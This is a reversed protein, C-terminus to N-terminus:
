DRAATEIRVVRAGEASRLLLFLADGRATATVLEEGADAVEALAAEFTVEGADNWVVVGSPYVGCVGAGCRSLTAQEEGDGFDVLTSGLAESGEPTTRTLAFGTDPFGLSFFTAPDTLVSPTQQWLSSPAGLAAGGMGAESVEFIGTPGCATVWLADGAPAIGFSWIGRGAYVLESVDGSREVKAVSSDAGPTREPLVTSRVGPEPTEATFVYLNGAEDADLLAAAAVRPGAHMSCGDGEWREVVLQGPERAAYAVVLGGEVAILRSTTAPVEFTCIAAAEAASREPAPESTCGLPLASAFLWVVLPLRPLDPQKMPHAM